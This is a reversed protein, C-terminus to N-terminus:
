LADFAAVVVKDRKVCAIRTADDNTTCQRLEAYPELEPARYRAARTTKVLVGQSTAVAMARGGASRPSGFPPMEGLPSAMVSATSVEPRVLLPQGAVLVELGRPGWAIPVTSAAEGRGGACRSGLPPAVPLLVDRM